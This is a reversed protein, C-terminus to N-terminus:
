VGTSFEPERSSFAAQCEIVKSLWSAPTVRLTNTKNNIKNYKIKSRGEGQACCEPCHAVNQMFVSEILKGLEPQHTLQM